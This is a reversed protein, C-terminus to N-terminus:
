AKAKMHALSIAYKPAPDDEKSFVFCFPGEILLVREKLLDKSGGFCSCGGADGRSIRAFDEFDPGHTGRLTEVDAGREGSSRLLYADGILLLIIGTRM